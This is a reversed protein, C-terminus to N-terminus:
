SYGYLETTRQEHTFWIASMAAAETLFLFVAERETKTSIATCSNLSWFRQITSYM